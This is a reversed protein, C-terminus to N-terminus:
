RVEKVRCSEWDYDYTDPNLDVLTLYQRVIEQDRRRDGTGLLVEMVSSDEGDKVVIVNIGPKEPRWGCDPCTRTAKTEGKFRMLKTSHGCQECDRM